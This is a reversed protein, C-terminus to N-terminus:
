SSAKAKVRVSSSRAMASFSFYAGAAYAHSRLVVCRVSVKEYRWAAFVRSVSSRALMSLATACYRGQSSSSMMGTTSMASLTAL